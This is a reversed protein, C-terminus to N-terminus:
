GVHQLGGGGRRAYLCGMFVAICQLFRRERPDLLEYSWAITAHMTRQRKPRDRSDSELTPLFSSKMRDRLVQPSLTSCQAAALEIALPLGDLHRCIATVAEANDATLAFDPRAAQARTVFLHIAGSAALQAIPLATGKDPLHLPTVPYVREVSLHMRTRSTALITLLPLDLLLDSILPTSVTVQEFNDLVMLIELHALATTIQDHLPEDAVEHLGVAHGIASLVGADDRVSALPVFLVGNSFQERIGMAVQLALRTKGVGGPGTLTLLPTDPRALLAIVEAIDDERGILPTRPVPMPKEHRLTLSTIM